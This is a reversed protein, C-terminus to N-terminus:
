KKNAKNSKRAFENKKDLYQKLTVILVILLISITSIYASAIYATM